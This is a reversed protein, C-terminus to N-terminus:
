PNWRAPRGWGRRRRAPPRQRAHPQFFGGPAGTTLAYYEIPPFGHHHAGGTVDVVALTGEDFGQGAGIGVTPFLFAAAPDGNVQAERVTGEAIIQLEVEHINGAM